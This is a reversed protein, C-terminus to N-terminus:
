VKVSANQTQKLCSILKMIEEAFPNNNTKDPHFKITLERYQAKTLHALDFGRFGLIDALQSQEEVTLNGFGKKSSNIKTILTNVINADSESIGFKSAASLMEESLPQVATGGATSGAAGQNSGAAQGQNTGSAQQQGTAGAAANKKAFIGGSAKYGIYALVCEIGKKGVNQWANEAEKNTKANLANYASKAFGLGAFAGFGAALVGGTSFLTGGIAFTAPLMSIGIGGLTMILATKGLQKASFNGDKDCVMGTFFKGVGTLVNKSAALFGISGNGASKIKNYKSIYEDRHSVRELNNYGSKLVINRNYEIQSTTPRVHKGFSIESVM